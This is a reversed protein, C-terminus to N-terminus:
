PADASRLCDLLSRVTDPTTQWSCMLRAGGGIFSYVVWGDRELADYHEPLLRAFVANAEVPHLIQIGMAHLEDALLAAMENAHRAHRLWTGDALVKAWPATMYRMKSALQGAQKCRFAFEAGLERDFFVVAESMGVGNKTGGLCLVDVGVDWSIARPACGLGAVANVFRAGDMHVRMNHAHAVTTLEAIDEARYVTGFETAQTLSLARPQPFHLDNRRTILREVTGPDLRAHLGGTVLVKAGNSFFEPAGCEDTELHAVEHCVVSQYPQCLTAIALSNAATGNFVFYVDCDTEFLERIADAAEATYTDEGYSAVYGQDAAVIAQRAEPCLGAANDSAFDYRV